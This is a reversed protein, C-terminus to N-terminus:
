ILKSDIIKPQWNIIQKNQQALLINVKSFHHCGLFGRQASIPSPHSATFIYHKKHNIINGKNQAYKGWLLFIVKEKHTNLISIIKDTFREWGINAHSCSRGEEVTLISNLLLVGEQAWSELCGHEPIVFDPMDSALEKYINRLSPPPLVGPLVSFAFGHAQNSGHYPDQGIIVVKISEFSTFRFANFVDKKKPYITIGKKKRKEIAFLINQFYPLTKEKSLLFRWNLKQSV